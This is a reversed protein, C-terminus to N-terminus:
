KKENNCFDKDFFSKIGLHQGMLNYVLIQRKTRETDNLSICIPELWSTTVYNDDVERKRTILDDIKSEAVSLATNLSDHMIQMKKFAEDPSAVGLKVEYTKVQDRLTELRADYHWSM